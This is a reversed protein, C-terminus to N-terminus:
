CPRITPTTTRRAASSWTRRVTPMSRCNGRGAIILNRGTGGIITDNGGGGIIINDGSGGTITDNGRGAVIETMAAPGGTLVDAYASGILKNIVGSISLTTNWPAIAAGAGQRPRSQRERGRHGPQLGAHQQRGCRRGLRAHQQFQAHLLRQQRQRRQLTLKQVPDLTLQLGNGTLVDNGSSTALTFTNAGGTGVVTVQNNTSGAAGRGVGAESDASGSAPLMISVSNAQGAPLEIVVIDTSKFRHLQPPKAINNYVMVQNGSFSVTVNGGTSSNM